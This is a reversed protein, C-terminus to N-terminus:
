RPPDLPLRPLDLPEEELGLAWLRGQLASVTLRPPRRSQTERGTQDQSGPDTQLRTPHPRHTEGTGPSTTDQREHGKTSPDSRPGDTSPPELHKHAPVPIIVPPEEGWSPLATPTYTGRSDHNVPTGPQPLGPSDSGVPSQRRHGHRTPSWFPHASQLLVVHPHHFGGLPRFVVRVEDRRHLDLPGPSEFIGPSVGVLPSVGQRTPPHRTAGPGLATETVPKGIVSSPRRPVRPGAVPGCGSRGPSLPLHCVPAREAFYMGRYLRRWDGWKDRQSQDGNRPRSSLLGETVTM